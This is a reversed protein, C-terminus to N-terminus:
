FNQDDFGAKIIEGDLSIIAELNKGDHKFDVEYVKKCQYKEKEIETIKAGPCVEEIIERVDKEGISAAGICSRKLVYGLVAIAFSAAALRTEALLRSRVDTRSRRSGVGLAASALIGSCCSVM